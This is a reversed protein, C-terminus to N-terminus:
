FVFATNISPPNLVCFRHQQQPHPPVCVLLAFFLAFYSFLYGFYYSVMIWNMNFSDTRASYGLFRVGLLFLLPPVFWFLLVM